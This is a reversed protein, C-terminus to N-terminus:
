INKLDKCIPICSILYIGVHIACVLILGDKVVSM